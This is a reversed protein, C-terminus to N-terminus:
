ICHKLVWVPGVPQVTSRFTKRDPEGMLDSHWKVRDLVAPVSPGSLGFPGVWSLGNYM